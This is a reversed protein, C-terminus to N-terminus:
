YNNQKKLTLTTIVFSDYHTSTENQIQYVGFNLQEKAKFPWYPYCKMTGAERINTTMVIISINEQWVM